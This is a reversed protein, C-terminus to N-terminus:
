VTRMPSNSLSDYYWRHLFGLPAYGGHMWLWLARGSRGNGDTFPHLTEYRQHTNYAENRLKEPHHTLKNVDDLLEKLRVEIIKGGPPPFYRGVRVDLRPKNRLVAAPQIHSVFVVMDLVNIESLGLFGQYAEMERELRNEDTSMGEIRNSEIIFDELQFM